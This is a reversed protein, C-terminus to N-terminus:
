SLRKLRSNGTTLVEGVWMDDIQDEREAWGVYRFLTDPLEDRDWQHTDRGFDTFLYTPTTELDVPPPPPAPMVHIWEPAPVPQGRMSWIYRVLAVKANEVNQFRAPIAYGNGSPPVIWVYFLGSIPIEKVLWYYIARRTAKWLATAAAATGVIGAIIAIASM